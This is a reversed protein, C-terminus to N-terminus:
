ELELQGSRLATSLSVKKVAGSDFAITAIDGTCAALTGPGFAKHRLRTGPTYDKALAAIQGPDRRRIVPRERPLVDEKSRKKPPFIERAFASRLDAKRFTVVSLERKARTMGVYFLRREEEYAEM